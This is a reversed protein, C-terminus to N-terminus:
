ARNCQEILQAVETPDTIEALTRTQGSQNSLLLVRQGLKLLVAQQKPQTPLSISGLVQIVESPLPPEKKGLMYRQAVAACTLFLGVVIGLSFLTGFLSSSRGQSGNSESVSEGPMRSPKKLVLGRGETRSNIVTTENSASNSLNSALTPQQLHSPPLGGADVSRVQGNESNTNMSFSTGGRISPSANQGFLEGTYLIFVIAFLSAIRQM